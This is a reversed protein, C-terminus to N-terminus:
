QNEGADKFNNLPHFPLFGFSGFLPTGDPNELATTQKDRWKDPQRNKLWFMISTPDPPYYEKFEARVVNGQYNFLKECGKKVFGTARSFLASAVRADAETKGKRICESFEPHDLKWKNLTSESINFLKALSKDTSGLLCHQFAMDCYEQRYATPRGGAHKGTAPKPAPTAKTPKAVKAVKTPKPQKKPKPEKQTPKPTTKKQAM